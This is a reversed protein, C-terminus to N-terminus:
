QQMHPKWRVLLLLKSTLSMSAMFYSAIFLIHLLSAATLSGPHSVAEGRIIYGGGTVSM